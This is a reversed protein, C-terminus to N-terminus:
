WIGGQAIMSGRRNMTAKAQTEYMTPMSHHFAEQEESNDLLTDLNKMKDAQLDQITVEEWDEEEEEETIPPVKNMKDLVLSDMSLTSDDDSAEADSEVTMNDLLNDMGSEELEDDEIVQLTHKMPPIVLNDVSNDSAQPQSDDNNDGSTVSNEESDKSGKLSSLNYVLSDIGTLEKSKQTREVRLLEEESEEEYSTNSDNTLCEELDHDSEQQQLEVKAEVAWLVKDLQVGEQQKALLKLAELSRQLLQLQAADVCVHHVARCVQAQLVLIHSPTNSHKLESAYRHMPLEQKRIQRFCEILTSLYQRKKMMHEEHRAQSQLRALRICHVKSKLADRVINREQNEQIIDSVVTALNAAFSPLM